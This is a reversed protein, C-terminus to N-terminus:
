RFADRRPEEDHVRQPVGRERDDRQGPDQEARQDRRRDDHLGDERPRADALQRALPDVGAVVVHDLPDHQDVGSDEHYEQEEDVDGVSEEVRSHPPDATTNGTGSSATVSSAIWAGASSITPGTDRRRRRRQGHNEPAIRASNMKAPRKPGYMVGYGGFSISRAAERWGGTPNPPVHLWGMPVSSRPRSMRERTMSPARTASATEIATTTMAPRTPRTTASM